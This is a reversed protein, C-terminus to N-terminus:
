QMDRCVNLRAPNYMERAFLNDLFRSFSNNMYIPLQVFLYDVECLDTWTLPCCTSVSKNNKSQRGMLKPEPCDEPVMSHSRCNRKEGLLVWQWLGESFLEHCTCFWESQPEDDSTCMSEPVARDHETTKWNPLIKKSLGLSLSLLSYGQPHYLGDGSAKILAGVGLDFCLDDPADPRLSREELSEELNQRELSCTRGFMGESLKKTLTQHVHKCQVLWCGQHHKYRISM